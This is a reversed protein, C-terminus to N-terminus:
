EPAPRKSLGALRAPEEARAAAVLGGFVGMLSAASESEGAQELARAVRRVDDPGLVSALTGAVTAARRFDGAAVLLDILLRAASRGVRGSQMATDLTAIARDRHGAASQVAALIYPDVLNGPRVHDLVCQAELPRNLGLAAWAMTALAQNRLVASCDANAVGRAVHWARLFEEAAVLRSADCLQERVWKELDRRHAEAWHWATSVGAALLLAGLEPSRVAVFALSAAVETVGVSVLMIVVRHGRAAGVLHRALEHVILSGVIVTGWRPIGEFGERAGALAATLLLALRVRVRVGALYRRRVSPSASGNEPDLVEM